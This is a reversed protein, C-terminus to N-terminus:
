TRLRTTWGGYQLAFTKRVRFRIFSASRLCICSLTLSVACHSPFTISPHSFWKATGVAKRYRFRKTTRRFRIHNRTKLRLDCFSWEVHASTARSVACCQGLSSILCGYGSRRNATLAPTPAVWHLLRIGQRARGDRHPPPPAPYGAARGCHVRGGPAMVGPRTSLTQRGAPPALHFLDVDDTVRVGPSGPGGPHAPIQIRGSGIQNGIASHTHSDFKAFVFVQFIKLLRFLNRWQQFCDVTQFRALAFRGTAGTVTAAEGSRM